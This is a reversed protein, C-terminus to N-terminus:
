DEQQDLVRGDHLAIVTEVESGLAAQYGRVVVVDSAVRVENLGDSALNRALWVQQGSGDVARLDSYDALLLLGQPQATHISRVFFDDSVHYSSPELVNVWYALAGAVVLLHAPDPTHSWATLGASPGIFDGFWEDGASPRVHLSLRTGAGAHRSCQFVLQDSGSAVATQLEVDYAAVFDFPM